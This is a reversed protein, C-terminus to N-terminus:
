RISITRSSVVSWLLQCHWSREFWEQPVMEHMEVIQWSLTPWQLDYCFRHEMKSVQQATWLDCRDTGFSEKNKLWLIMGLMQPRMLMAPFSCSSDGSFSLSIHHWPLNQGQLFGVVFLIPSKWLVLSSFGNLSHNSCYGGLLSVLFSFLWVPLHAAISWRV